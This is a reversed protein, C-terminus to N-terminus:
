KYWNSKKPWFIYFFFFSLISLIFSWGMLHPGQNFHEQMSVRSIACSWLRMACMFLLEFFRKTCFPRDAFVVISITQVHVLRMHKQKVNGPGNNVCLLSLCVPGLQEPANPGRLRWCMKMTARAPGGRSSREHVMSDRQSCLLPPKSLHLYGCSYSNCPPVGAANEACQLRYLADGAEPLRTPVYHCFFGQRHQRKKNSFVCFTLLFFMHDTLPLPLTTEALKNKSPMLTKLRVKGGMVLKCKIVCILNCYLSIM